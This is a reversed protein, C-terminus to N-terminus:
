FEVGSRCYCCTKKFDAPILGKEQLKSIILYYTYSIYKSCIDCSQWKLEGNKYYYMMDSSNIVFSFVEVVPDGVLRKTITIRVMQRRGGGRRKERGLLSLM